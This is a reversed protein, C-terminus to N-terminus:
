LQVHLHLLWAPGQEGQLIPGEARHLTWRAQPLRGWQARRLVPTPPWAAHSHSHTSTSPPPGGNGENSGWQLGMPAGNGENSGSGGNGGNVENSGWQLRMAGMARM